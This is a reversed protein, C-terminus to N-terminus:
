FWPLFRTMLSVKRFSKLRGLSPLFFIIESWYIILCSTLTIQLFPLLQKQQDLWWNEANALKTHLTLLFLTKRHIETSFLFSSCICWWLWAVREYEASSWRVNGLLVLLPFFSSKQIIAKGVESSARVGGGNERSGGGQSNLQRKGIDQQEKKLCSYNYYQM